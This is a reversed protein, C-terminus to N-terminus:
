PVLAGDVLEDFRDLAEDSDADIGRLPGREALHRQAYLRAVLAKRQGGREAREWAAQETLLAGAYVDGMFQALPFLRAEAVAGDLKTWATIAADLGEIRRAVLATTQGGDGTDDSVSVADHMRALLIEHARTKEIGRRVDLCLINDPGEWITNVQADRLLRAVPWTEIYGNGGHIEIADSAATIGLRCVRLKTVPVAIRQRLSRPQRHNAAGTGDFVMAQAAEVDVILEALKRRMLPKDVLAGGFAHRQRAYCLSEVLARRANGLAFLAIGLRAANTLEMMRGLGKGDSPGSQADPGSPAGSLLFAEADVFEVEGSAVSRTGLKDKLRRVRVGNRSGDRRTRLVLFNAVGRSSDSAGEPKALVVFAEGACNSAFWKFGNLLWADGARTATTELAGLDSGGTRETLLQATEGAWEGSDFKALVHERVDAPAYAAVLSQVMGGGTGLACGMGIDAQDLLYNSAFLALGSSVKAARADARLAQQAELIASKSQTFSPPMVVQSIDHGWRDYRELRPPNRDAEDAWRAVPGGMLAGISALHPEVVALEDPRLYYAMTFQLTPDSSYWNLGVAGRYNDTRYRQAKETTCFPLRDVAEADYDTM